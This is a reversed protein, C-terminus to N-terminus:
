SSLVLQRVNFMTMCLVYVMVAYYWARTPKPMRFPAVNLGALVVVVLYCLGPFLEAGVVDRVAFLATIAIINSDIPLGRYSSGSDITNFHALRLAGAVALAFAGPMFWPNFDGVALLLIGPAVGSCVLDALSDLQGGFARDVDTRSRMRRAIPGDIWDCLLAWLLALIAPIFAQLASFYISTVGCLLGTLTVLNARDVLFSITSRQNQESNM